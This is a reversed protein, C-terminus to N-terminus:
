PSKNITVRSETASESTVAFELGGFSVSQGPKLAASSLSDDLRLDSKRIISVPAMQFNKAGDVEYLLVGELDSSGLMPAYRTISRRELVIVTQPGTRVVVLRQPLQSALNSISVSGGQLSDKEICLVDSNKIWGLQFRFWGNLELNFTGWNMSMIDWWGFATHRSGGPNVKGSVDYLDVLGFLHGTEHTMWRFAQDGLPMGGTATGLPVVGDATNESWPFAPGPTIASAPTEPSAMVYAVDYGGIEFEAAANSLAEKYYSVYDGSGWSGIGYAEANKSMRVYSPLVTYEFKVAGSSMAEFFESNKKTAEEVYVAPQTKGPYNPFDVGIVLARIRGTSPLPKWSQSGGFRSTLPFGVSNWGSGSSTIKCKELGAGTISDGQPAGTISDGQPAGTISDGQPLNLLNIKVRGQKSKVKTVLVSVRTSVALVHKQIEECAATARTKIRSAEVKKARPAQFAICEASSVTAAHKNVFRKVALKQSASLTTQKAGWKTIETSFSTGAPAATASQSVPNIGITALSLVLAVVLQRPRARKYVFEQKRLISKLASVM